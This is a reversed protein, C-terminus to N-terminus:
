NMGEQISNWRRGSEDADLTRMEIMLENWRRGSEDANLTRMEARARRFIAM